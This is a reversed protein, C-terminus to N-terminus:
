MQVSSAMVWGKTLAMRVPTLHCPGPKSRCQRTALINFIRLYLDKTVHRGFCKATKSSIALLITKRLKMKPKSMGVSCFCLQNQMNVKYGEVESTLAAYTHENPNEIYSTVDDAFLFLKVEKQLLPRKRGM